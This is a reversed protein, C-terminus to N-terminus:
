GPVEGLLQRLQVLEVHALPFLLQMLLEPLSHSALAFAHGFCQAWMTRAQAVETQNVINHERSILGCPPM